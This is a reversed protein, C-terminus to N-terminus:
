MERYKKPDLRKSMMDLYGSERSTQGVAASWEKGVLDSVAPNVPKPINSQESFTSVYPDRVIGEGDASPGFGYNTGGSSNSDNNMMNTIMGATDDAVQAQRAKATEDAVNEF